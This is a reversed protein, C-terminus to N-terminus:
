DDWECGVRLEGLPQLAAELGPLHYICQGHVKTLVYGWSRLAKHTELCRAVGIITPHYELAVFDVAQQGLVQRGGAIVLGEAGECDVKLLRARRLANDQFFSDLTTARVRERTWGIRWHRFLSSAGTNTSPRLFLEVEGAKDSLAVQHVTVSYASNLRINERLIPQLRSQPEICHVKGQAVLTAALIAFYGENGGVDIFLDGPRLVTELLRTMQPEYVGERMLHIGLISAPDVWFVCGRPGYVLRRKVNLCKKVFDGLQAPRIRLLMEYYRIRM